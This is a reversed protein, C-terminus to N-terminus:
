MPALHVTYQIASNWYLVSMNTSCHSVVLHKSAISAKFLATCLVMQFHLCRLFFEMNWRFPVNLNAWICNTRTCTHISVNYQPSILEVYNGSNVLTSEQSMIANHQTVTDQPVIGELLVNFQTGSSMLNELTSKCKGVGSLLVASLNTCHHRSCLQLMVYLQSCYTCM